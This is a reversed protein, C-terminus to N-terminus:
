VAYPNENAELIVLYNVLPSNKTTTNTGASHFIIDRRLAPSLLKAIGKNFFVQYIDLEPLAEGLAIKFLDAYRRFRLKQM